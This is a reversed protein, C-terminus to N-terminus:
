ACNLGDHKGSFVVKANACNASVVSGVKGVLSAGGTLNIDAVDIGECPTAKNCAFSVAANTTTTGRINRSTSMKGPLAPFDQKIVIPNLAQEM